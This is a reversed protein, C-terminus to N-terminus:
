ELLRIFSWCTSAFFLTHLPYAIGAQCIWQMCKRLIKALKYAIIGTAAMGLYLSPSRVTKKAGARRTSTLCNQSLDWSTMKEPSGRTNAYQTMSMWFPRSPTRQRRLDESKWDLRETRKRFWEAQAAQLQEVAKDHRKREEDLGSSKLRSFLWNSGSYALANMLAGAVLM